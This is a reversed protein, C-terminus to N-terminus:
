IFIISSTNPRTESRYSTEHEEDVVIIGLNPFPTFLATRPGIMIDISGEKARMFQDAISHQWFNM